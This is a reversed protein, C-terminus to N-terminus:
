ERVSNILFVEKYLKMEALKMELEAEHTKITDKQLKLEPNSGLLTPEERYKHMQIDLNNNYLESLRSKRKFELRAAHYFNLRDVAFKQWALQMEESCYRLERQYAKLLALKGSTNSFMNFPLSLEIEGEPYEEDQNRIMNKFINNKEIDWKQRTERWNYSLTLTVEPLFFNSYNLKIKRSLKKVEKMLAITESEIKQQLLLTDPQPNQNIFDRNKQLFEPLIDGYKRNYVSVTEKYDYLDDELKDIEELNDILIDPGIQKQLNLEELVQNQQYLIDLKSTLYSVMSDAEYWDIMDDFIDETAESYALKLNQKYRLLNLRTGITNTVDDYDKPFLTKELEIRWRKDKEEVDSHELVTETEDRTFDNDYQQHSLNIDFWNLSTDISYIAKEQEYRSLAQQYDVNTKLLSNMLKSLDSNQASMWGAVLMLILVLTIKNTM